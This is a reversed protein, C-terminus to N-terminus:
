EMRSELWLIAEREGQALVRDYFRAVLDPDSTTLKELRRMKKIVEVIADGEQEFEKWADGITLNQYPSLSEEPLDALTTAEIGIGVLDHMLDGIGRTEQIRMGMHAVLKRIEAAQDAPLTDQLKRLDEAFRTLGRYHPHGHARWASKIKASSPSFGASLLAEEMLLMTSTSYDEMESRSIASRLSELAADTDGTNFLNVAYVYAPLANEQDTEYFERSRELREELDLEPHTSALYLLKHNEQSLEVSERILDPDNTLLGLIALAEARSEDTNSQEALWKKLSSLEVPAAAWEDVNFDSFKGAAELDRIKRPDNTTFSNESIALTSAVSPENNPIAPKSRTSAFWFVALLFGFGVAFFHTLIPKM